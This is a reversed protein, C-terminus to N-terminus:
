AEPEILGINGDPRRFLVTVADNSSNRFVFVSADGDGLEAAADEITMPKAARSRVRIVRPQGNGSLRRAADARRGGTRGTAATSTEPAPATSETDAAMGRRKRGDWKGKLKRVQQNIKALAQNIALEWTSGSGTGHFFHEGRAHLTIEARHRFKELGLVIQMSVARDHFLRDLKDLREDVLRTLTPTIRVHRGTLELRM